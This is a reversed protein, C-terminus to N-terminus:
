AFRPYALPDSLGPPLPVALKVSALRLARRLMKMARNCTTGSVRHQPNRKTDRKPYEIGVKRWRACLDDLHMPRLKGIGLHGLAHHLGCALANTRQQTRHKAHEAALLALADSV